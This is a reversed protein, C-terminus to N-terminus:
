ARSWRRRIGIAVAAVAVGYSKGLVQGPLMNLSGFAITLFVASDVLVAAGGACPVARGWRPALWSFVAFDTAESIAFAVLSATAVAPSAILYSLAAALVVGAAAIPSGSLWQVGDRLVFAPGVSYVGAPALLGFGVPVVGVRDTLCNAALVTGLYAVVVAVALVLSARGPTTNVKATPTAETRTRPRM